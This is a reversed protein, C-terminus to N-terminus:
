CSASPRAGAPRRCVDRFSCVCTLHGWGRGGAGTENPPVAPPGGTRGASGHAPCRPARDERLGEARGLTVTVACRPSRSARTRPVSPSLSPARLQVTASSFVALGAGQGAAPPPPHCCAAPDGASAPFRVPQSGRAAGRPAPSERPPPPGGLVCARGPRRAGRRWHEGDRRRAAGSLRPERGGGRGRAPPRRGLRASGGPACREARPSRKGSGPGGRGHGQATRGPGRDDGDSDGGRPGM